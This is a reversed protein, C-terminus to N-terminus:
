RGLIKAFSFTAVRNKCFRKIISTQCCGLCFDKSRKGCNREDSGDSCDHYGDCKWSLTICRGTSTCQFENQNCRKDIFLIKSFFKFRSIQKRLFMYHFVLYTASLKGHIANRSIYKSVQWVDIVFSKKRFSNVFKLRESNEVFFVRNYFNSLTIFVGSNIPLQRYIKSNLRFATFYLICCNM